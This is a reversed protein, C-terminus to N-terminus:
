LLSSPLTQGSALASPHQQFAAPRLGGQVAGLQLKNGSAPWHLMWGDMCGGLIVELRHMNCLVVVSDLRSDCCCLRRSDLELGRGIHQLQNAARIGEREVHVAGQSSNGAALTNVTVALRLLTAAARCSLQCVPQVRKAVREQQGAAARILRNVLNRSKQTHALLHRGECGLSNSIHASRPNAPFIVPLRTRQGSAPLKSSWAICLRVTEYHHRQQTATHLGMSPVTSSWTARASRGQLEHNCRGAM